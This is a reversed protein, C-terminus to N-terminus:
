FWRCRMAQPQCAVGINSCIAKGGARVCNRCGDTWYHCTANPGDYIGRESDLTSLGASPGASEVGTDSALTCGLALVIVTWIVPRLTMSHGENGTMRAM